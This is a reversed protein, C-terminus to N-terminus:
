INSTNGTPKYLKVAGQVTGLAVNDAQPSLDLGFILEEGTPMVIDKPTNQKFEDM